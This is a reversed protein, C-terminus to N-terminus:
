KYVKTRIVSEAPVAEAKERAVSLGPAEARATGALCQILKRSNVGCSSFTFVNELVRQRGSWDM